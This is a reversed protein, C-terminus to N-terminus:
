GRSSPVMLTALEAGGVPTVARSGLSITRTRNEDGAGAVNTCTRRPKEPETPAGREPLQQDETGNVWPPSCARTAM